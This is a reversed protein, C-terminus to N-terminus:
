YNPNQTLKLNKDMASQPIPLLYNKNAYFKRSGAPAPVSSYVWVNNVKAIKIAHLTSNLNIEALKWRLLDYWRKGEFALEIRRERHIAERMQEQSLSGDLPPLASRVRVRNIADYVSADPGSVENKAEAYSLLAEAYRFLIGNASNDSNGLIHYKPDLGKRWYYGTNSAESKDGLDTENKDGTGQKMEMVADAWICGDYVISQYFRKERNLYPNQSDYGSAPDTIPLGNAMFYADVLEQTPDSWAWSRAIGNVFTPAANNVFTNALSTGGLHQSAFITEVNNNNEAYHLTNYDPFLSYIGLDIVEKFTAAALAWKSKDGNPNNLPSAEFLECWGKLTLAAGKTARGDTATLSLDNAIADLEDKIFTLTEGSTNREVFISDGQTSQNLVKTIIPVGGHWIWLLQYFYARIFRVEALKGKKWSDPMKSAVVKEIFLNCRRINSYMGWQNPGDSPTYISTAYYTRSSSAQNIGNLANDSYNELPEGADRDPIGSYVNNLFLQANDINNWVVLDSVQDKPTVELFKECSALGIMLFLLIIKNNVNITINKM